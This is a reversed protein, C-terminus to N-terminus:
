IKDKDKFFFISKNNINKDYMFKAKKMESKFHFKLIKSYKMKRNYKVKFKKLVAIKPKINKLYLVKNLDNFSNKNNIIENSCILIV